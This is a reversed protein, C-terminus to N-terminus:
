SEDAPFRFTHTVTREPQGPHAAYRADLFVDAFCSEVWPDQISSRVVRADAFQGDTGGPRLTFSLEVEQPPRYRDGVDQFCREVLPRLGEIARQELEEDAVVEEVEEPPDLDWTQALGPGPFPGPDEPVYPEHDDHHEHDDHGAAVQGAGLPVQVSGRRTGPPPEHHEAEAAVPRESEWTPAVEDPNGAWWLGLACLGLFPIAVFLVLRLEM